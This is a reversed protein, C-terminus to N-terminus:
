EGTDEELSERLLPAIERDGYEELRILALRLLVLLVEKKDTDSM